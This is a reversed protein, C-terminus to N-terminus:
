RCVRENAEVIPADQNHLCRNHTVSIDTYRCLVLVLGTLKRRHLPQVNWGAIEVDVLLAALVKLTRGVATHEPAQPTPVHQVNQANVPQPAVVIFDQFLPAHNGLLLLYVNHHQVKGQQVGAGPHLPLVQRAPKHSIEDQL